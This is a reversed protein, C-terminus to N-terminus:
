LAGGSLSSPAGGVISEIAPLHVHGAKRIFECITDTHETQELIFALLEKNNIFYSGGSSSGSAELPHMATGPYTKQVAFLANSVHFIATLKQPDSFVKKPKRILGKGIYQDFSDLFKLADHYSTGLLAQLELIRRIKDEPSRQVVLSRLISRSDDTGEDVLPKLENLFSLEHMLLLAKETTGLFFPVGYENALFAYHASIEERTLQATM